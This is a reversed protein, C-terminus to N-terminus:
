RPVGAAAPRLAPTGCWARGGVVTWMEGTSLRGAYICDGWVNGNIGYPILERGEHRALFLDREPFVQAEKIHRRWPAARGVKWDVAMIEEEDELGNASSSQFIVLTRNASNTSALRKFAGYQAKVEVSKGGKTLVVSNRDESSRWQLGKPLEGGNNWTRDSSAFDVNRKLFSGTVVDYLRWGAGVKWAITNSDAWIVQTGATVPGPSVRLRREGRLDTAYVYYKSTKALGPKYYFRGLFAIEIRPISAIVLCFMGPAIITAEELKNAGM